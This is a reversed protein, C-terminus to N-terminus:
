SAYFMVSVIQGSKWVYMMCVNIPEHMTMSVHTSIYICADRYLVESVHICLYFCVVRIFHPFSLMSDSYM